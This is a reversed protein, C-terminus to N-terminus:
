LEQPYYLFQNNHTLFKLLLVLFHKCYKASIWGKGSEFNKQAVRQDTSHKCAKDTCYVVVFNLKSLSDM